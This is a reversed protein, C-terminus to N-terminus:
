WREALKYSKFSHEKMELVVSSHEIYIVHFAADLHWINSILNRLIAVAQLVDVNPVHLNDYIALVNMPLKKFSSEALKQLKGRVTNEMYIAWEREPSDGFWPESILINKCLIERMEKVKKKKRGLRFLGSDLANNPFEREALACFEAYQESVAETIEIGMDRSYEKLIFDPRDEHFLSLPYALLNHEGLTSLLRCIVSQEVHSKTRGKTRLPVSIDIASLTQRLHLWDAVNKLDDMIAVSRVVM